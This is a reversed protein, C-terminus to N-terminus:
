FATATSREAIAAVLTRSFGAATRCVTTTPSEKEALRSFALITSLGVSPVTPRSFTAGSALRGM